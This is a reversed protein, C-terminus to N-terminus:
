LSLALELAQDVGAKIDDVLFVPVEMDPTLGIGEYSVGQADLYVENSLGMVWGNPLPKVLVDSLIGATRVGIVTVQPLQSMPIAFIEAASSTDAGVILTVPNLYAGTAPPELWAESPVSQFDRSRASKSFALQRESIFRQAFNFSIADFGGGNFRLDIILRTTDALNAMVTDMTANAAALENSLSAGMPEGDEDLVYGEMGFINIYGTTGDDATGWALQSQDDTSGEDLLSEIVDRFEGFVGNAWVNIDTVESQAAFGREFELNIGREVASSYGDNNSEIFVHGDDIPSLLDSLLGFLAVDDTAEGVKPLQRAYEAAWDVNRQDFFAYYEDFTEWVYDFTGQADRAVVDDCRAPLTRHILPLCGNVM